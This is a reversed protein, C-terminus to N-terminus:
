QVGPGDHVPYFDLYTRAAEYSPAELARLRMDYGEDDFRAHLVIFPQDVCHLLVLAATIAEEHDDEEHYYILAEASARMADDDDSMEIAPRNSSARKLEYGRLRRRGDKEIVLAVFADAPEDSLYNLLEFRHETSITM